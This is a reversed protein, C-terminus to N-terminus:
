ETWNDIKLGPVRAFHKRNNTVLVCGISLAHAAIMADNRGIPKGIKLLEAQLVAFEEAATADWALIRNLRDCFLRIAIRYRNPRRTREAGLRLEAYSIASISIEAGALAKAQLAGLLRPNRARIVYSCIDTDLMYRM